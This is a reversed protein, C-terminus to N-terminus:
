ILDPYYRPEDFRFLNVKYKADLERIYIVDDQYLERRRPRIKLPIKISELGSKIATYYEYTNASPYKQRGFLRIIRNQDYLAGSTGLKVGPQSTRVGVKILTGFQSYSDPYGRTPFDIMRKFYVDPIEYRAVRRTPETLIDYIKDYDYERVPDIPIGPQTKKIIKTEIKPSGQQPCKQKKPYILITLMGLFFIIIILVILMITKNCLCVRGFM